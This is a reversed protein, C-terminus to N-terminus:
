ALLKMYLRFLYILGFASTTNSVVGLIVTSIMPNLPSLIGVFLMLVAQAVIWLMVVPAVLSLNSFTLGTSLYMAKFANTNEKCAIVPSLAWAIAILLAPVFLLAMGIRFMVSYICLLIALRPLISLSTTLVQVFGTHRGQSVLQILTLVGGVLIIKGIMFSFLTALSYHFIASQQEPTIQQEIYNMMSSIDMGAVNSMLQEITNIRETSPSSIWSLIVTVLAALVSLALVSNMQNRMFIYSDRFLTRATISM